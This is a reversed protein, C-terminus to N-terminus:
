RFALGDLFEEQGKGDFTEATADESLIAVSVRRLLEEIENLLKDPDRDKLKSVRLGHVIKSRWGYGAKAQKLVEQAKTAEKELFLAVRQSLRYTYRKDM